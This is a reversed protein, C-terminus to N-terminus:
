QDRGINLAKLDMMGAIYYSQRTLFNQRDLTVELLTRGTDVKGM